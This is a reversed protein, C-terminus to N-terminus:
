VRSLSQVSSTTDSGRLAVVALSEPKIELSPFLTLPPLGLSYIFSCTPPLSLTLGLGLNGFALIECGERWSSGHALQNLDQSLHYRMSEEKYGWREGSIEEEQVNIERQPHGKSPSPELLMWFRMLACFLVQIM